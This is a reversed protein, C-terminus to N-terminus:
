EPLENGRTREEERKILTKITTIKFWYEAALDREEAGARYRKRIEDIEQQRKKIEQIKPLRAQRQELDRGNM